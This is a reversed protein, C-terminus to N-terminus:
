DPPRYADPRFLTAIFICAAAGMGVCVAASYSYAAAVGTAAAIIVGEGLFQASQMIAFDTGPQSNTRTYGLVLTYIAVATAGIGAGNLAIVPYITAKDAGLLGNLVLVWAAGSAMTALIGLRLMAILSIRRMLVAAFACGVFMAGTNLAGAAFGVDVISWEMDILILRCLSFLTTGGLTVGVAAFFLRRALPRRLFDLVSAKKEARVGTADPERWLVTPIVLLLVIVALGLMAVEYGIYGTVITAGAAGALMGSMFGVVQIVGANSLAEPPLKEAALGDAAIDQTAAAVSVLMALALLIFGNEANPPFAAMAALAAIMVFQGPVLWTKRRGWQRRWNNEVFPAWLFKFALPLVVIPWIAIQELPVGNSKLLTPFTEFALGIPIGQATYLGIILIYIPTARSSPVLSADAGISAANTRGPSQLPVAM